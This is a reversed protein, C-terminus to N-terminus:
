FATKTGFQNDSGGGEQEMLEEFQEWMKAKVFNAISFRIKDHRLAWDLIEMVKRHRKKTKVLSKYLSKIDSQVCSKLNIQPKSPHDFNNIWTPYADWFEDAMDRTVLVGDIFKQTVELRDVIIKTKSPTTVLGKAQLDRIENIKFQRVSTCYRYFNVIASEDNPKRRKGGKGEQHDWYLLWCLWFQNPTIKWKVLLDTFYKVDELM